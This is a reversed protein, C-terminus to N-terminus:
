NDSHSVRAWMHLFLLLLYTVCLSTMCFSTLLHFPPQQSFDTYSTMKCSWHSMASILVVDSYFQFTIWGLSSRINSDLTNLTSKFKTNINCEGTGKKKYAEKIHKCQQLLMGNLLKVQLSVRIGRFVEVSATRLINEHMLLTMVSLTKPFLSINLSLM